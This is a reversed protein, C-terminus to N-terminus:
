YYYLKNTKIYTVLLVKTESSSSENILNNISKDSFAGLNKLGCNGLMISM